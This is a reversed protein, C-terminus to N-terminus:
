VLVVRMLMIMGSVLGPKGSLLGQLQDQLLACHGILSHLTGQFHFAAM